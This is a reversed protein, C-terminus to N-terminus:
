RVIIKKGNFYMLLIQWCNRNERIDLDYYFLKYDANDVVEKRAAPRLYGNDVKRMGNCECTDRNYTSHAFSFTKGEESLKRMQRIAEWLDITEEKNVSCVYFQVPTFYLVLGLRTIRASFFSDRDKRSEKFESGSGIKSM